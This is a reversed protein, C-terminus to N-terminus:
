EKWAKRMTMWRQSNKADRKAVLYADRLLAMFIALVGGFIIGALTMTIPKPRIKKEAPVALDLQQIMSSDKAEDIKALEYQKSLLEFITEYYKVNRLTRIYEIGVEPIKGSPVMVDGRKSQGGQLKELQGQLGRMEEQVRLFEPNNATAFTRMAKLQVDKAAITGQLQAENAIIGKVQGELQLMGTAEQMKRMAVEANALDEKAGKLQKEFFVRRRAAETIALTKTVSALETVYANALEAAFKPDADEISIGILGDKGNSLDRVKELKARTEDLTDKGYREKLKFQEILRDAITRSQLMGVYLDNPNKLGAISGAAGALGGLQGLMASVSSSQQQPPMIVATSVYKPAMLLSAILALAGTVLPFIYIIKRQRVLAACLDLLHM